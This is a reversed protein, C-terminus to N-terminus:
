YNSALVPYLDTVQKATTFGYHYNLWTGLSFGSTVSVIQVADGKASNHGQNGSLSCYLPRCKDCLHRNTFIPTNTSVLRFDDLYPGALFIIGVTLLVGCVVDLVSHVGQYLRSLCVLTCWIVAVPVVIWPSIEYRQLSLYALMFPIATASMAHTSPMGSEQLFETELRIVPPASPRPWQLFDKTAQGVYMSLCWILAAKRILVCDVNWVMYPYFVLYFAENGLSSSLTLIYHLIPYRIFVKVNEAGNPITKTKQSVARQTTQQCAESFDSVKQGNNVYNNNEKDVSFASDVDGTGTSKLKLSEDVDKCKSIGCLRQFKATLHPDNLGNCVCKIHEM